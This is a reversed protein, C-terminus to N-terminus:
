ISAFVSPQTGSVTVVLPSKLHCFFNPYAPLGRFFNRILQQQRYVPEFIEFGSFAPQVSIRLTKVRYLEWRPANLLASGRM